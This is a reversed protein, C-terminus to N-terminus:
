EGLWCYGTGWVTRIRTSTEGLDRLLSRLRSVHVDVSRTTSHEDSGFATLMLQERSFVEGPRTMFTHLICLESTSLSATNGGYSLTQKRTDLVYSGSRVEGSSYALTVASGEDDSLAAKKPGEPDHVRRLVAKIRALLERPSFPKPMYDDAGLELGVIRDTEQGKATLMIVPVKSVERIRVLASFGDEGPMMVDLLLIDPKFAALKELVGSPDTLKACVYGNARFFEGAREHLLEDDDVILIKNHQEVATM